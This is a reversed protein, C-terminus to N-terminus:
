QFWHIWVTLIAATVGFLAMGFGVIRFRWGYHQQDFDLGRVVWPAYSEMNSWRVWRLYTAPWFAILLGLALFAASLVILVFFSFVSSRM